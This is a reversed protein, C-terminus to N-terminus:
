WFIEILYNGAALVGNNVMDTCLQYKGPAQARKGAIWDALNRMDWESLPERKVNNMKLCTYNSAEEEAVVEYDNKGYTKNVLKDWDNYGMVFYSTQAMSAQETEAQGVKVGALYSVTIAKALLISITRDPIAYRSVFLITAGHPDRITLTDVTHVVSCVGQIGDVSFTYDLNKNM